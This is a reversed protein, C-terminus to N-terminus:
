QDPYIGTDLIINFILALYRSIIINADIFFDAPISDIGPGKNRKLSSINKKVEDITFPKDLDEILMVNELNPDSAVFQLDVM